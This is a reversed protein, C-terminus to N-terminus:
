KGSLIRTSETGMFFRLFPSNLRDQTPHFVKLLAMSEDFMYKASGNTEIRMLNYYNDTCQKHIDKSLKTKSFDAACNMYQLDALQNLKSQSNNIEPVLITYYNGIKIQLGQKLQSVYELPDSSQAWLDRSYYNYNHFYNVGKNDKLEKLNVNITNSAQLMNTVIENELAELIRQKDVQAQIQMSFVNVFLSFLAGLVLGSFFNDKFVKKILKAPFVFVM